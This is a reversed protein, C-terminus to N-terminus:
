TIDINKNQWSNCSTFAGHECLFGNRESDSCGHEDTGSLSDSVVKRKSPGGEKGTCGFSRSSSPSTQEDTERRNECGVESTVIRASSSSKLNSDSFSLSGVVLPDMIHEGRLRKHVPECTQYKSILSYIFDVHQQECVSGKFSCIQAAIIESDELSSLALKRASLGFQELVKLM